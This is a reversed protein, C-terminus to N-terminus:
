DTPTGGDSGDGATDRDSGVDATFSLVVILNQDQQGEYKIRRITGSFPSRVASLQFLQANLAAIKEEMQAVQFAREQEQRQQEQFQQQRQIEAQQIAIARKSMELSHVYEQHQREAQAQALKAEALQLDAQAQTFERRRQELVETEHPITAEPLSASPMSSLMDLMRQQQMLNREAQEVKLRAREIEAVQSLFSAPPLGAVEPVPRSPSAGPIPQQLREMQIELQRRQAELRERDRTRDALIQGQEVRDGEQVKLDDPSSLTLRVDLSRRNSTSDSTIISPTTVSPSPTQAQLHGACGYSLGSLGVLCLVSFISKM